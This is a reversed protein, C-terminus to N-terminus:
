HLHGCLAPEDPVAWAIFHEGLNGQWLGTVAIGGITMMTYPTLLDTPETYSWTKRILQAPQRPAQPAPTTDQEIPSVNNM